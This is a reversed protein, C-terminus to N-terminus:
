LPPLEETESPAAAEPAPAPAVAKASTEPEAAPFANTDTIPASEPAAPAAKAAESEHFKELERLEAEEDTQLEQNNDLKDLWDDEPSPALAETNEEKPAPGIIAEPPPAVPADIVGSPPALSASPPEKIELDSAEGNFYFRIKEDNLDTLLIGDYKEPVEGRTWIFTAISFDECGQVVQADGSVFVDGPTLRKDTKPDINQFIRFLMGPQVGDRTGRNIYVWKNQGSM